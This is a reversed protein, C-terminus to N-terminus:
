ALIAPVPGERSVLFGLDPVFDRDNTVSTPVDPALLEPTTWFLIPDVYAQQPIFNATESITFPYQAPPPSGLWLSEHRSAMPDQMDHGLMRDQCNQAQRSNITENISADVRAHIRDSLQSLYQQSLRSQPGVLEATLQDSLDFRRHLHEDLLQTIAEFFHQDQDQDPTITSLSRLDLDMPIPLAPQVGLLSNDLFSQALSIENFNYEQDTEVDNVVPSDDRRHLQDKPTWSADDTVAL